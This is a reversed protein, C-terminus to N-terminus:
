GDKFYGDFERQFILGVGQKTASQGLNLIDFQNSENFVKLRLNGEPTIMYELRFDGILSSAAGGVAAASQGQVGFNGSLLLRDQFLQTTLAVALEESNLNDAARYNVGVDVEQSLQSLWNSLQASVFESTTSSAGSAVGEGFSASEAPMFKNLVLLAFVQRNLEQETSLRSKVLSQTAPDSTPVNIDFAIDPNLMPGTLIMETQVPVRSTSTTTSGLLDALSARLEYIANIDLEARYPDGYFSISGGQAVKFQKNIINQLTFLYSGDLITYRGYMEFEGGRDLTMTLTGQGNGEMVDGIQKDFVLRIDADPTVDIEIYLKLGSNLANEEDTSDQASPDKFYIYDEFVVEERSGLPLEINSGKETKAHVEIDVDEGYGSLSISGSAMVRGYFINNETISTNLCFMNEFEAFFDYNWSRFRDHIITGNINGSNGYEDTFPIYDFGMWDKEIIVESSFTYRTNLYNVKVKTKDFMLTGTVEPEFVSGVVSLTGSAHGGLDSIASTPIKNLINLDFRDLTLEADLIGGTIDPYFKGDLQIERRVGDTIGGTFSLYNQGRDWTSNLDLDGIIEKGLALNDITMGAELSLIGLVNRAKGHIDTVGKLDLVRNPVFQNIHDLQFNDVDFRLVSEPDNSIVGDLRISEKINTVLADRVTWEEKYYDVMTEKPILWYDGSLIIQSPFIINTVSDMSHFMSKASISGSAAREVLSWTLDTEMTDSFFNLTALNDRFHSSDSLALERNEILLYAYNNMQRAELHVDLAIAKVFMITDSNMDAYFSHEKSDLAGEIRTDKSFKWGPMFPETLMDPKKLQIIFSFDSPSPKYDATLNLSPLVDSFINQFDAMLNALIFKGKMEIDFPSSELILNRIGYSVESNIWLEEFQFEKNGNGYTLDKVRINGRFDDATKGSFEAVIKGSLQTTDQALIFGLKHLDLERVDAQFDFKPIDNRNDVLGTFDLRIGNQEIVIDGNFISKEFDADVTINKYTFGKYRLSEIKGAIRASPSTSPSTVSYVVKANVVDLEKINFIEGLQVSTMELEGFYKEKLATGPFQITSITHINGKKSTLDLASKCVARDGILETQLSFQGIRELFDLDSIVRTLEQIGLSKLEHTSSNLEHVQLAYEIKEFDLMNGVRGDAILRSYDGFRFDIDRFLLDNIKGHAHGQLRYTGDIDKLPPLFSILDVTRVESDNLTIDMTVSDIFHSLDTASTYRFIVDAEIRSEEVLLSTHKLSLENQDLYFHSNLDKVHLGSFSEVGQLSNVILAVGGSLFQISDVSLQLDNVLIHQSDFRGKDMLPVNDNWLEFRFDEMTVSRIGFNWSTASSSTQALLSDILLILGDSSQGPQTHMAFKGNRLQIKDLMITNLGIDFISIDTYVSASYLLTDMFYDHVLLTDIEINDFPTLHVRAMQVDVGLKNTLLTSLLSAVKKQGYATNVAAWLAVSILLLILLISLITRKLAKM